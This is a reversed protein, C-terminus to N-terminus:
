CSEVELSLGEQKDEGDEGGGECSSTVVIDEIYSDPPNSSNNEREQQHPSPSNWVGIAQWLKKSM